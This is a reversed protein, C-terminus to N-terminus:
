EQAQQRNLIAHVYAFSSTKRNEVARLMAQAITEAPYKALANRIGTAEVGYIRRPWIVQLADLDDDIRQNIERLVENYERLQRERELLMVSRDHPDEGILIDGLPKAAKGHNCEWCSTVLNIPDDTGNAACPVVHDVELVVAPSTRGCYQCTFRDRKFVEFRTRVSLAM